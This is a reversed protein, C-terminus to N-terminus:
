TVGGVVDVVSVLVVTLIPRIIIAHLRSWVRDNAKYKFILLSKSKKKQLSGCVKEYFKLVRLDIHASTSPSKQPSVFVLM